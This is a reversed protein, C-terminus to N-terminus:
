VQSGPPSIYVDDTDEDVVAWGVATDVLLYVRLLGKMMRKLFKVKLTVKFDLKQKLEM